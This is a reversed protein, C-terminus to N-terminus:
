QMMGIVYAGGDQICKILSTPERRMVHDFYLFSSVLLFSTGIFKNWTKIEIFKLVTPSKGKKFITKYVRM